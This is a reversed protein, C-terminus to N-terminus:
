RWCRATSDSGDRAEARHLGRENVSLVWCQEDDGQAGSPIVTASATYGIGSGGAAISVGLSYYGRETGGIGLGAPPAAVLQAAGAYHGNQAYFKEQAAAIRLLTTTADSRHARRVYQRYSGVAVTTVIALISMVVLLEVLSFGRRPRPRM